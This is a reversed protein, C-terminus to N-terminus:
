VREGYTNTAFEAHYYRQSLSNMPELVPPRVKALLVNHVPIFLTNTSESSTRITSLESEASGVHSISGIRKWWRLKKKM